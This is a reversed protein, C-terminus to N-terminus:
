ETETHGVKVATGAMMGPLLTKRQDSVTKGVSREITETQGLMVMTESARTVGTYILGRHHMFSHGKDVIVIVCQYESGQTKHITLAYALEINRVDYGEIRIVGQPGFDAVLTEGNPEYSVVTGITGNMLGDPHADYDNKTQIIKDEPMFKATVDRKFFHKQVLKQIKQNLIECSLEVKVKRPTLIQVNGMFDYGWEKTSHLILEEIRDYIEMPTYHHDEILWVPKNGDYASGKVAGDLIYASNHKLEGAQRHVETLIKKPFNPYGLLDRLINGPGVPPLQNHDGVFTVSTREWDIASLLRWALKVDLMSVEDVIVRDCPLKRNSNYKWEAGDYGLMRHITAASMSPILEEIRKAAKGTPAALLVTEKQNRCVQALASLAHSKGTGAIGSIVSFKNQLGLLVAARQDPTLNYPELMVSDVEAPANSSLLGAIFQEKEALSQKAVMYGENTNYLCWLKNKGSTFVEQILDSHGGPEWGLLKIAHDRVTEYPACTHGKQELESLAQYVGARGRSFDFRDDCFNEYIPKDARALTYTDSLLVCMFWWDNELREM